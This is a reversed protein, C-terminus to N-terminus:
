ITYNFNIVVRRNVDTCTSGTHRISTKFSVFRNEVSEIKTGDEFLTYGNNTNLYFVASKHNPFTNEYDIHYGHEFNEETRPNLNAKVRILKVPNIKEIIPAMAYFFESTVTDNKYFPHSFQYQNIETDSHETVVSDYGWPFDYQLMTAKLLALSMPDLFNDIIEYDESNMNKGKM